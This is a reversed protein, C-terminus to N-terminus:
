TFIEYSSSEDTVKEGSGFEMGDKGDWGQESGDFNGNWWMTEKIKMFKGKMHIGDWNQM